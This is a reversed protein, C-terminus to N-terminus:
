WGARGSGYRSFHSLSCTLRANSSDWVGGVDVWSDADGNFWYLTVDDYDQATTGSLNVSIEVPVHFQAGHPYLDFILEPDRPDYEIRYTTEYSLAGPPITLQYRGCVVTGGVAPDVRLEARQTGGGGSSGSGGYGVEPGDASSVDRIFEPEGGTASTLVERNEACGSVLWLSALLGVAVTSVRHPRISM